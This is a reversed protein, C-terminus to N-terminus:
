PERRADEVEIAFKGVLSEAPGYVSLHETVDTTLAGPRPVLDVRGHRQMPESWVIVAGPDTHFLFDTRVSLVRVPRVSGVPVLGATCNACDDREIPEGGPRVPLDVWRGHGDCEDCGTEIDIRNGSEIARVIAAPPEHDEPCPETIERQYEDVWTFERGDCENGYACEGDVVLLRLVPPLVFTGDCECPVWDWNSGRTHGPVKGGFRECDHPCPRPM